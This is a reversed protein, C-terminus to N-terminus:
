EKASNVQVVVMHQLVVEGSAAILGVWNYGVLECIWSQGISLVVIMGRSCTVVLKAVM